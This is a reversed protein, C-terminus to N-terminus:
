FTMSVAGAGPQQNSYTHAISIGPGGLACQMVTRTIKRKKKPPSQPYHVSWEPTMIAVPANELHQLTSTFDPSPPPENCQMLQELEDTTWVDVAEDFVSELPRARVTYRISM